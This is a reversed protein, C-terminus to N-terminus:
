DDYHRAIYPGPKEPLYVQINKAALPQMLVDYQHLDNVLPTYGIRSTYLLIAKKFPALKGMAKSYDGNILYKRIISIINNLTELPLGERPYFSDSIKMKEQNHVKCYLQEEEFILGLQNIKILCVSESLSDNLFLFEYNDEIEFTNNGLYLALNSRSDLAKLLDLIGRGTIENDTLYIDKLISNVGLLRALTTIGLDGIRNYSLNLNTLTSNKKLAVEIAKIGPDDIKNHSLNLEKLTDALSLIDSFAPRVLISALRKMGSENIGCKLLSLKELPIFNLAVTLEKIRLDGTETGGLTLGSLSLTTLNSYHRFLKQFPIEKQNLQENPSTVITLSGYNDFSSLAHGTTPNLVKELDRESSILKEYTYKPRPHLQAKNKSKSPIISPKSDSPVASNSRPRLEPKPMPGAPVLSYARQRSPSPTESDPQKPKSMSDSRPKSDPERKSKPQRTPKLKSKSDPKLKSDPQQKSKSKSALSFGWFKRSQEEQIPPPDMGWSSTICISGLLIGSIALTTGVNLIKSLTTRYCM